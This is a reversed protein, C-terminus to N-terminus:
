VYMESPPTERIKEKIKKVSEDRWEKVKKDLYDLDRVISFDVLPPKREEFSRYLLEDESPEGERPDFPNETWYYFIRLASFPDLFKFRKDEFYLYEIWPSPLEYGRGSLRLVNRKEDIPKGGLTYVDSRRLPSIMIEEVNELISYSKDSIDKKNKYKGIMRKLKEIEGKRRIKLCEFRLPPESSLWDLITTYKYIGWNECIRKVHGNYKNPFIIEYFGDEGERFQFEKGNGKAKTYKRIYELVRDSCYLALTM